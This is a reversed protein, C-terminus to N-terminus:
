LWASTPHILKRATLDFLGIVFEAACAVKGDALTMVQEVRGIKGRYEVTRSRILVQERNTVERQFRLRAELLVPGLGRERVERLGFGNGTIWDWRAEEFIELYTANNVHGFVDLHRETILLSYEHHRGPPPEM